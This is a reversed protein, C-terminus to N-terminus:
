FDAKLQAGILVADSYTEAGDPHMVYQIDPSLILGPQAVWDYHAEIVTEESQVGAADMLLPQGLMAQIQQTATVSGSISERAFVIGLVDDPRSPLFGKDALGLFFFRSLQATAKDSWVYGGTVILGREAGAGNRAIMQDALVYSSNRGGHQMQPLGTVAFPDGNVDHYLDPYDSTDHAIGVKYHGELMNAGLVPEYGIEIPYYTGTTHSWGWDFGSRGGGEPRVQYAGAQLYFDKGPALRVRAGWTSNPFTSFGAKAAIANPYGCVATNLFQCYLPSTAYDEGVPLRGAAIDIRGRALKLDGYIDVLHVLVNGAGGYISQAQILNDGVYDSSVNNGTRNILVAHTSFGDLGALKKWDIDVGLQLQQAYASGTDMGGSLNSAAQGTYTATLDIGDDHLAPRFGGWEGFLHQAEPQADKPKAVNKGTRDDGSATSAAAGFAIAILVFSALRM